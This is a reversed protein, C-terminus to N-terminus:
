GVVAAVALDFQEGGSYERAVGSQVGEGCRRRGEASMDYRSLQM